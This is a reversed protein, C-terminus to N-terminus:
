FQSLWELNQEFSYRKLSNRVAEGMEIMGLKHYSSIQASNKIKEYFFNFNEDDIKNAKLQLINKKNADQSDM